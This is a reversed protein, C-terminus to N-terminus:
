GRRRRTPWLQICVIDGIMAAVGVKWLTDGM